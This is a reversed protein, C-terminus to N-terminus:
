VMAARSSKDAGVASVAQVLRPTELSYLVAVHLGGAEARFARRGGAQVYMVQVKERVTSEWELKEL